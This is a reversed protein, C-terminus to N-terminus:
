LNPALPQRPTGGGGISTAKNNDIIKLAKIFAKCDNFWNTNNGPSGNFDFETNVVKKKKM